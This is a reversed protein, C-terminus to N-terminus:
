EILPQILGPATLFLALCATVLLALLSLAVLRGNVPSRTLLSVLAMGCVFGLTGLFLDRGVGSGTFSFFVVAVVILLAGVATVVALVKEM